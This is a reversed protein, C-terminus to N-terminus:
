LLKSAYFEAECTLNIKLSRLAKLDGNEVIYTAHAECSALKSLNNLATKVIPNTVSCISLAILVEQLSLSKQDRKLNLIPELITPSLLDM